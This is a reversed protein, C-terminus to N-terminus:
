NSGLPNLRYGLLPSDLVNNDPCPDNSALESPLCTSVRRYESRGSCAALLLCALIAAYRM